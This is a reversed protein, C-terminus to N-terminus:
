PVDPLGTPLRDVHAVQAPKPATTARLCLVLMILIWFETQRLGNHTLSYLAAPAFYVLSGAGCARAIQWFLYLFLGLGAIGYCFLMTALSSHLEIIYGTKTQFRDYAGEGAGFVLHEGHTIIRDYGRDSLPDSGPGDKTFRHQINALWEWDDHSTWIATKGTSAAALVLCPVLVVSLVTLRWFGRRRGEALVLFILMGVSVIAARSVSILALYAAASIGLARLLFSALVPRRVSRSYVWLLSGFLVAYYGLQNPNNFFATARMGGSQRWVTTLTVQIVLSAFVALATARVFGPGCSHMHGLFLLCATLNFAYYAASMMLWGDGLILAHASNVAVVYSVLLCFTGFAHVTHRPIQLRGTVITLGLLVLILLDSLQPLGSPLLYFPSLLFYACWVATPLSRRWDSYWPQLAIDGSLIARLPLGMTPGFEAPYHIKDM